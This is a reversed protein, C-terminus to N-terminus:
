ADPINKQNKPVASLIRAQSKEMEFLCFETAFGTSNLVLHLNTEGQKKQKGSLINCQISLILILLCSLHRFLIM